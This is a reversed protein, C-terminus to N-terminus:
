AQDLQSLRSVLSLNPRKRVSARQGGGSSQNVALTLGHDYFQVWTGHDRAMNRIHPIEQISSIKM